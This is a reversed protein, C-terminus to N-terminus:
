KFRHFLKVSPNFGDVIDDGEPSDVALDQYYKIDVGIGLRHDLLEYRISTGFYYGNTTKSWEYQAAGAYLEISANTGIYRLYNLPRFALIEGGGPLGGERGVPMIYEIVGGWASKESASRYAGFSFNIVQSEDKVDEGRKRTVSLLHKGAGVSLEYFTESWSYQAIQTFLLAVLCQTFRVM